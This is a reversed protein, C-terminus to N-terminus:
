WYLSNAESETGYCDILHIGIRQIHTTTNGTLKLFHKDLCDPFAVIIFVSMICLSIQLVETM